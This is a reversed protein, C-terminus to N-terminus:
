SKLILIGTVPVRRFGCVCACVCLRVFPAYDKFWSRIFFVSLTGWVYVDDIVCAEFPLLLLLLLLFCCFCLFLLLLFFFFDPLFRLDNHKAKHTPQCFCFSCLCYAILSGRSLPLAPSFQCFASSSPSASRLCAAPPCFRLWEPSILILNLALSFQQRWRRRRRQRWRRMGQQWGAQKSGARQKGEAQGERQRSGAIATTATTMIQVRRSKRSDRKIRTSQVHVHVHVHLIRISMIFVPKSGIYECINGTVRGVCPRRRLTSTAQAQARARM